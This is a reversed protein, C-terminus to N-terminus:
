LSNALFYPESGIKEKKLTQRFQRHQGLGNNKLKCCKKLFIFKLVIFLDIKKM